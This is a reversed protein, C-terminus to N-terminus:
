SVARNTRNTVRVSTTASLRRARFELRADVEYRAELALSNARAPPAEVVSLGIALLFATVILAPRSLTGEGEHRRAGTRQGV